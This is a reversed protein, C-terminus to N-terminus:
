GARLQAMLSATDFAHWHEVLKGDRIRFLHMEDISYRRGTPEVGMFPGTHRAGTTMRAAVLDGEAVLEHIEFTADSVGAAARKVGERLGERGPPMPGFTHPVFDDAVLQDIAADEQRVFVREVIDRVVRKNGELQTSDTPAAHLTTMARGYASVPHLWISPEAQPPNCPHCLPM